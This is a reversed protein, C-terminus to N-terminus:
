MSASLVTLVSMSTLASVVESCVMLTGMGVQLYALLTYVLYHYM